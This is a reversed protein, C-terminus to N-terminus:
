WFLAMKVVFFNGFIKLGWGFFNRGADGDVCELSVRYHNKAKCIKPKLM